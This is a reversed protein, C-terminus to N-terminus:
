YELSKGNTAIVKKYWEFSKKKTRKLTGQGEDDLDVYIFGYRKSMQGTAVSVLDIPGWCTYGLVPLGDIEVADKLVKIHDRLYEIRYDDEVYGNEDPEDTAGLGNEAVFLPKQYRDYIENMTIRLGLPDIFRGWPEMKLYPNPASKLLNSDFQGESNAKAVRTSYYSFSVYDVVNEKLIDEDNDCFPITYHNREFDMKMYQPYEGRVQVDTFMYHKRNEEQAAQVDLPNCTAPYFLGANLMCGIQNESDIEHGIKVAWASAVLVHHVADYISKYQNEDEDFILGAAMFCASVMINIENFTLWYKVMGIYRKFLVKVLKKYFDILQRNKWGGYKTVLNMPIDYHTITVLPEINYKRCEKFINEYFLLGEENPELDDGNPFIRSWAISIRLTKFGMEGFLAIDEKYHHYFDIAKQAPYYEEPIPNLRAVKGKIIDYRNKGYPLVDCNSLGRGGENYGGECQNAALAGGWLFNKCFAM